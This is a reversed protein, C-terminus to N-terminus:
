QGAMLELASLQSSLASLQYKLLQVTEITWMIQVPYVGAARCIPLHAM